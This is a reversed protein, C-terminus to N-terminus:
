AGADGRKRDFVKALGKKEEKLRLEQIQTQMALTYFGKLSCSSALLVQCEVLLHDAFATAGLSRWQRALDLGEVIREQIKGDINSGKLEKTLEMFREALDPKMLEKLLEQQEEMPTSRMDDTM